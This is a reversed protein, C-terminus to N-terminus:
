QKGAIEKARTLHMEVHKRTDTLHQRVDDRTARPIMKEDIAALAEEHGKVMADMYAKEYEDDCRAALADLEAK